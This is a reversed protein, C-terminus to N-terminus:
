SKGIQGPRASESSATEQVFELLFVRPLRCVVACELWGQVAAGASLPSSLHVALRSVGKAVRFSFASM